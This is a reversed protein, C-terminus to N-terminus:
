LYEERYAIRKFMELWGAFIKEFENWNEQIGCMQREHMYGDVMWILMKFINEPEINEKFKGFDVNNFYVSYNRNLQEINLVKLEDSVEDKESYFSRIAFEMLYPNKTMMQLKKKTACTILDFFDTKELMESDAVAETVTQILYERVALYLEKKNHFYYFLLGKSVCAKSAILDTSARKYEYKGFVEMAANYVARQKEEPLEKFRENM